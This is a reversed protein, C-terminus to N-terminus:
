RGRKGPWGDHAVTKSTCCVSVGRDHEWNGPEIESKGARHRM